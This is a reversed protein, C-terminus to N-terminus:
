RKRKPIEKKKILTEFAIEEDFFRLFPLDIVFHPPGKGMFPAKPLLVKHNKWIGIPELTIPDYAIIGFTFRDVILSTEKWYLKGIAGLEKLITFSARPSVRYSTAPNKKLTLVLREEEKKLLAIMEKELTSSVSAPHMVLIRFCVGNEKEIPPEICFRLEPM